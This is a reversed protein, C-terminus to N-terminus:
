CGKLIKAIRGWIPSKKYIQKLLEKSKTRKYQRMLSCCKRLTLIPVKDWYKLKVLAPTKAVLDQKTASLSQSNDRYYYLYEKLLFFNVGNSWLRLWYEYDEACFANEDYDGFKAYLERKYMFCAGICCGNYLTNVNKRPKLKLINDEEDILYMNAYVFDSKPNNELVELMKEIANPEYFNDDSTWTLYDGKAERFGINLSAPLKQNIENRISKIRKDKKVYEKIINPTEDVSCDDVIILEWNEYTQNIISDLSKKIFRSGNYTPLIISIIDNM